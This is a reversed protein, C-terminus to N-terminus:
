LHLACAARALHQYTWRGQGALTQRFGGDPEAERRGRARVRGLRSQRARWEGQVAQAIQDSFFYHDAFTTIGAQIMEAIGLLAGWYVDEPELNSELPWVHDNFWSALGVDEALGRFLVM